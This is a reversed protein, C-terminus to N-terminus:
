AAPKDRFYSNYQKTWALTRFHMLGLPLGIAYPILGPRRFLSWLILSWYYFRGSDLIGMFLFSSFLGRVHYFGVRPPKVKRPKYERLFTKVRKYYFRPSYITKLVRRYGEVLEKADMKPVFNLENLEFTASSTDVLRGAEKLRKYLRTKPSVNLLGVMAAIIGSKQIFDIQSQFITPKDSDFGIIFGANVEFGKHQIKKVSELLDRNMNHHKGCEELGHDDPTEIGVFVTSFGAQIMMDMLREDDALNISVQTSLIFPYKNKKQWKVILPLYEKKLRAKNGIFNDDVFFVGGKWGRENLSDLEAILQVPTKLRPDRGNLVIVDCFECNYPCGRSLQICVSNYYRLNAVDWDPVPSFDVAPYKKCAYIPQISGEKMDKIFDQFTEEAEGIFITEVSSFEEWGITFLSGGAVIPRGLKQVRSIVKKTSEKQGVIASIFVYDAWLIHEDKLTTCNMDVLKKEWDHPIMAAITLLGLPPYSAKKGLVKFVRKPNWFTDEYEPYVLLIKM